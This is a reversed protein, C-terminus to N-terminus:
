PCPAFSACGLADETADPGCAGFPAPPAEGGLFLFGLTYIPDSIDLKGSDDADAADLGRKDETRGRCERRNEREGRSPSEAAGFRGEGVLVASLAL